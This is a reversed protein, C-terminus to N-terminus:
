IFMFAGAPIGAPAKANFARENPDKFFTWYGVFGHANSIRFPIGIGQRDGNHSM